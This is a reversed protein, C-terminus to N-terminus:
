PAPRASPAAVDRAATAPPAPATTRERVREFLAVAESQALWPHSRDLLLIAGSLLLAVVLAGELAGLCGGAVRDVLGLGAFRVSRRVVRGALTVALLTGLGLGVVALAHVAAPPLADGIHLALASAAADGFRWTAFSAAALGALSFAERVLGLWLGRASALALISIVAVDIGPLPGGQPWVICQPTKDASAIRM